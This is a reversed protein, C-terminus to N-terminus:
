RLLSSGASTAMRSNISRFRAMRFYQESKCAEGHGRYLPSAYWHVYRTRRQLDIRPRRQSCKILEAQTFKRASRLEDLAMEELAMEEIARRVREEVRSRREQAM